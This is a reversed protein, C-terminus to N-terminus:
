LEAMWASLDRGILEQLGLIDDRYQRTIGRRLNRDLPRPSDLNFSHIKQELSKRVAAPLLRVFGKKVPNMSTVLRHLLLSRPWTGANHRQTTDPHFDPQIRLFTFIEKVFRGPDAVLDDYLLFLFRDRPFTALFRKTRELYLGRDFYTRIEGRNNPLGAKEADLAESYSALSEFGMRVHM